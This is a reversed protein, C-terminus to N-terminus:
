ALYDIHASVCRLVLDCDVHVQSCFRCVFENASRPDVFWALESEPAAVNDLWWRSRLFNRLVTRLREGEDALHLFCTTVFYSNDEERTAINRHPKTQQQSPPPLPHGVFIFLGLPSSFFPDM